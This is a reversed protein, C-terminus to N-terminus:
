SNAEPLDLQQQQHEIVLHVCFVKMLKRVCPFAHTLVITLGRGDRQNYDCLRLSSAWSSIRGLKASPSHGPLHSQVTISLGIGAARVSM